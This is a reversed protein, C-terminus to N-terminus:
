RPSFIGLVHQCGRRSYYCYCHASVYLLRLEHHLPSINEPFYDFTYIGPPIAPLRRARLASEETECLSVETVGDGAGELGSAEAVV